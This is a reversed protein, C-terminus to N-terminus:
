VVVDAARVVELLGEPTPAEELRAFLLQDNILRAVRTLARNQEPLVEAPTLILFVFRIPEAGRRWTIPEKLRAIAVRSQTLGPIRAHPIAAGKGVATSAQEERRLLIQMVAGPRIETSEKALGELMARITADREGLAADIQVAGLVVHDALNWTRVAEFEDHVEGVLEELVDELTLLGVISGDDATVLAIQAHERQFRRLVADLETKESIRLPERRLTELAVEGEVLAVDKIHMYGVVTEQDTLLYRSLKRQTIIAANDHWPARMDLAVAKAIPVMVGGARLTGFDLANELLLSRDLSVEGQRYADSVVIRIEEISLSPEEHPRVSLGLVRLTLNTIWTLLRLPIRVAFHFLQMPRATLFLAREPLQIAGAKPVQEGLVIHVITIVTFALAVSVGHSYRGIYPELLESAAPEGLWGIGLSAVTIGLQCAGLYDNMNTHMHKVLVAKKVGSDALEELRSARMRVLAFEFVVFFANAALFVLSILLAATASM